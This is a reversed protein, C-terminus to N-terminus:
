LALMVRIGFDSFSVILFSLWLSIDRTFYSHLFESCFITFWIWYCMLLIMSWSWIPNIGLICPHRLMCLYFICWMLLIFFLFWIIMENSASFYNSLIWCGKMIFIRLLNPISTSYRLTIFAIYLLGVALMM